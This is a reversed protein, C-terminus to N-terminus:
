KESVKWPADLEPLRVEFPQFDLTAPIEHSHMWCLKAKGYMSAVLTFSSLPGILYDCESLLCLDEGPNGSPFCLNYGKLASRYLDQDLPTNSCFYLTCTDDGLQRLAQHIYALYEEDTFYYKGNCWTKYDGRRIHIGLSGRQGESMEGEIPLIGDPHDGRGISPSPSPSLTQRIKQRIAPKFEFLQRIEELYKYFLDFHRVSWGEVMVNRHALIRAENEPKPDTSGEYTVTPIIGWQALYKGALYYLFNHHPTTCIHFYQYKYAFRMSMCHRHHERAWAYVHAYQLINNCMQGKDRVFIM